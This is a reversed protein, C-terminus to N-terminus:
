NNKLYCKTGEDLLKTYKFRGETLKEIKLAYVLPMLQKENYWMSIVQKKVGLQEALEKQSGFYNIVKEFYEKKM